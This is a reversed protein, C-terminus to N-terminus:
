SYLLYISDRGLLFCTLLPHARRSGTASNWVRLVELKAHFDSPSKTDTSRLDLEKIKKGTPPTITTLAMRSDALTVVLGDSRM